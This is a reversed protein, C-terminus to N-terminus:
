LTTPFRSGFACATALREARGRAARLSALPLDCAVVSCGTERALYVGPYGRGCGIDLLRVGRQLALLRGLLAAQDITTYGNAGVNAGIAAREIAREAATGRRGYRARFREITRSEESTRRPQM